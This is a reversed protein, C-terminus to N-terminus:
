QKTVSFIGVGSISPDLGITGTMLTASAAYKASLLYTASSGHYIYSIRVSDQVMSWTGSTTDSAVSNNGIINVVGSTKFSLEFNYTPGGPTTGYQGTGKWNTGEPTTNGPPTPAPDDKGCSSIAAFLIFLSAINVLNRIM